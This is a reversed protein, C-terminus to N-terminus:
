HPAGSDSNPGGVHHVHASFRLGDIIVNAGHSIINITDGKINVVSDHNENEGTVQVEVGVFNDETTLDGNYGMRTNDVPQIDTTRIKCQVLFRTANDAQVPMLVIRDGKSLRIDDPILLNNTTLYLVDSGELQAVGELTVKLDPQPTIVNGFLVIAGIGKLGNHRDLGGAIAQIVRYLRVRGDITPV